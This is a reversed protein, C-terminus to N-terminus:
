GLAHEGVIMLWGLGCLVVFAASIGLVDKVQPSSFMRRAFVFLGALVLPVLIGAAILPLDQIILPTEQGAAAALLTLGPM